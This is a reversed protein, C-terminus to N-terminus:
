TEIGTKIFIYGFGTLRYVRKIYSDISQQSHCFSRCFLSAQQDYEQTCFATCPSGGQARINCHINRLELRLCAHSPDIHHQRNTGNSGNDTIPSILINNCNSSQRQSLGPRLEKPVLKIFHFYPTEM